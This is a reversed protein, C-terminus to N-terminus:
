DRGHAQLDFTRNRQGQQHRFEGGIGELVGKRVAPDARDGDFQRRFVVGDQQGNGIVADPCRRWVRLVAALLSGAEAEDQRLSKGLLEAACQRSRTRRARCRGQAKWEIRRRVPQGGTKIFAHGFSRVGAYVARGRCCYGSCVGCRSRRRRSGQRPERTITCPRGHASCSWVPALRLTSRPARDIWGDSLLCGTPKLGSCRRGWDRDARLYPIPMSMQASRNRITAMMAPKRPKPSTADVAVPIAFTRNKRKRTNKRTVVIADRKAQTPRNEGPSPEARRRARRCPFPLAKIVERCMAIRNAAPTAM